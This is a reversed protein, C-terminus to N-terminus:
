LIFNTMPLYFDYTGGVWVVMAWYGGMVGLRFCKLLFFFLSAHGCPRYGHTWLGVGRFLEEGHFVWPTRIDYPFARM